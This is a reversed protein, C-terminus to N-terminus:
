VATAPLDPHKPNDILLVNLSAELEFGKRQRMKIRQRIAKQKNEYEEVILQLEELRRLYTFYLTVMEKELDDLKQDDIQQKQKVEQLWNCFATYKNKLIAQM